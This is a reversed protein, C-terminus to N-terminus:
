HRHDINADLVAAQPQGQHPVALAGPDTVTGPSAFRHGSDQPADKMTTLAKQYLWGLQLDEESTVTRAIIM